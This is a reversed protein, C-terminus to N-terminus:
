SAGAAHVNRRWIRRVWWKRGEELVLLAIAFPGIAAWHVLAIPATGFIANGM